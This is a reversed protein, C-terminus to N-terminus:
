ALDETCRCSVDVVVRGVNWPATGHPRDPRRFKRASAGNGRQGGGASNLRVGTRPGQNQREMSRLRQRPKRAVDDAMSLGRFSLLIWVGAGTGLEFRFCFRDGSREEAAARGCPRWKATYVSAALRAKWSRSYRRVAM